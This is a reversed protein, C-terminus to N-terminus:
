GKKSSLYANDMERIHYHMAEKQEEGLELDKSYEHVVSWPIAGGSPRDNALDKFGNYFLELGQLLEPANQIAQPFPLKERLCQDMIKVEVEGQEIGYLM